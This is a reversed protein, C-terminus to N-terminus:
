QQVVHAMEHALLWLGVPTHPAFAGDRFYVDSGITVAQAGLSRCLRDGGTAHLRVENLDVQEHGLRYRDRFLAAANVAM